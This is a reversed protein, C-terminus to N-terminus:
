GCCKYSRRGIGHWSGSPTNRASGNKRRATTAAPWRSTPRRRGGCPRESSRRRWSPAGHTRWARAAEALQDYFIRFAEALYRAAENAQEVTLGLSALLPPAEQREMIDEATIETSAILKPVDVRVMNEPEITIEPLDVAGVYRMPKGDMYVVVQDMGNEDPGM